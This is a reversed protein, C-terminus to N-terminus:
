TNPTNKFGNNLTQKWTSYENTLQNILPDGKELGVYRGVHIALAKDTPININENEEILYVVRQDM